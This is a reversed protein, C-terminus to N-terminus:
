PKGLGCVIDLGRRLQRRDILGELEARALSGLLWAPIPFDRLEVKLKRARPIVENILVVAMKGSLDANTM